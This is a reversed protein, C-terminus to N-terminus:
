YNLKLGAFFVKIAKVFSRPPFYDGLRPRGLGLMKTRKVNKKCWQVVEQVVNVGELGASGGTLAKM